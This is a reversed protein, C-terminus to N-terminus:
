WINIINPDPLMKFWHKAISRCKNYDDPHLPSHKYVTEIYNYDAELENGHEPMLQQCDDILNLFFRIAQYQESNEM